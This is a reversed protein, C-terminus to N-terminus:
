DLGFAILGLDLAFELSQVVVGIKGLKNARKATACENISGRQYLHTKGLAEIGNRGRGSHGAADALRSM